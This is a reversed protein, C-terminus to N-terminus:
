TQGAGPHSGPGARRPGAGPGPAPGAPPSNKTTPSSLSGGDNKQTHPRGAGRGGGRGAWARMPCGARGRARACWDEGRQQRSVGCEGGGWWAGMAGARRSGAAATPGATAAVATAASGSATARRRKARPEDKLTLSSTYLSPLHTHQEGRPPTARAVFPPPVTVFREGALPGHPPPRVAPRHADTRRAGLPSATACRGAACALGLGPPRAVSAPPCGGSDAAPQGVQRTGGGGSPPCRRPAAAAAPGLWGVFFVM